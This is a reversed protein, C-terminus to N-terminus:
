ARDVLQQLSNKVWQKFSGTLLENFKKMTGVVYCCKKHSNNPIIKGDTSINLGRIRSM